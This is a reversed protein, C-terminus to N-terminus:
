KHDFAERVLLAPPSLLQPLVPTNASQATSVVPDVTARGDRDWHQALSVSWCYLHLDQGPEVVAAMAKGDKDFSSMINGATPELEWSLYIKCLLLLSILISICFKKKLPQVLNKM